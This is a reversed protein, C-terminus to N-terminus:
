FKPMGTEVVWAMVVLMMPTPQALRNLASLSLTTSRIRHAQNRVRGTVKPSPYPNMTTALFKQPLVLPPRFVRSAARAPDERGEGAHEVDFQQTFFGVKHAFAEGGPIPAVLRAHGLHEFQVLLASSGKGFDLLQLGLPIRDGFLDASEHALLFEGFGLSLLGLGSVDPVADRLQILFYGFGLDCPVRDERSDGVQGMGADCEALVSGVIRFDADVAALGREGELRESM